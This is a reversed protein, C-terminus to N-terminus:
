SGTVRKAEERAKEVIGGVADRTKGTGEEIPALRSVVERTKEGLEVEVSANHAVREVAVCTQTVVREIMERTERGLEFEITFLGM